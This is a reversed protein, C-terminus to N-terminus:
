PKLSHELRSSRVANFGLINIIKFKEVKLHILTKAFSMCDNYYDNWTWFKWPSMVGQLCCFCSIIRGGIFYCMPVSVDVKTQSAMANCHGHNAVTSKLAEIVTIPKVSGFGSESVKIEVEQDPETM